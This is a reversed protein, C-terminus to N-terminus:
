CLNDVCQCVQQEHVQSCLANSTAEYMAMVRDKQHCEDAIQKNSTSAEEEM